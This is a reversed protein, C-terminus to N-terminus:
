NLLDEVSVALFEGSSSQKVSKKKSLHPLESQQENQNFCSKRNRKKEPKLDSYPAISTKQSFTINRGSESRNESSTPLNV